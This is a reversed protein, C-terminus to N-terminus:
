EHATNNQALPILRLNVRILYVLQGVFLCLFSGSLSCKGQAKQARKAPKYKQRIRAFGREDAALGKRLIM